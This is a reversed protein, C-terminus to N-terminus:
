WELRIIDKESIGKEIKWSIQSFLGKKLNPDHPVLNKERKETGVHFLKPQLNENSPFSFTLSFEEASVLFMHEFIPQPEEVEYIIDYHRNKQGSQLPENLKVTFEKRLPSAVQISDIKVEKNKEDFIKVNLEAMTKPINTTIGNIVRSVTEKSSAIINYIRSIQLLNSNPNKLKLVFELNKFNVTKRLNYNENSHYIKKGWKYNQLIQIEM